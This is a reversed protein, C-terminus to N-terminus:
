GGKDDFDEFAFYQQYRPLLVFRSSENPSQQSFSIPLDTDNILLAPAM